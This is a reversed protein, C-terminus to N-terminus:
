ALVRDLKQFLMFLGVCAAIAGIAAAVNRTQESLQRNRAIQASVDLVDGCIPCAWHIGYDVIVTFPSNCHDCQVLENM